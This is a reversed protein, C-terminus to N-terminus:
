HVISAGLPKLRQRKPLGTRALNAPGENIAPHGPEAKRGRGDRVVPVGKDGVEVLVHRGVEVDVNDEGGGVM